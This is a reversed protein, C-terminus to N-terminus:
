VAKPRAAPTSKRKGTEREKSEAMSAEATMVYAGALKKPTATAQRFLELVDDRLKKQIEHPILLGDSGKYPALSDRILRMLVAEIENSKNNPM